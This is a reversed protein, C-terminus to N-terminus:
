AGINDAMRRLLKFLVRIETDTFGSLSQSSHALVTPLIRALLSRGHPTLDLVISRRDTKRARRTLLSQRAMLAVTHALTTRDVGAHEALQQMSCGPYQNLVAMVRWRPYDLDFRRLEGNLVRNRRSLVKSFWYFAHRELRFDVNGPPTPPRPRDLADTMERQRSV